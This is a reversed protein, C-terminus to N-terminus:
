RTAPPGWSGGRLAAIISLLTCGLVLRTSWFAATDAGYFFRALWEGLYGAATFSFFIFVVGLWVHIAAIATRSNASPSGRMLFLRLPTIFAMVPFLVYAVWPPLAPVHTSLWLAPLFNMAAYVLTVPIFLLPVGYVTRM